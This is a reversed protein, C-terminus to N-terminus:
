PLQKERKATQHLLIRYHISLSSFKKLKSLKMVAKKIREDIFSFLTCKLLTLSTCYWSRSPPPRPVPGNQVARLKIHFDSLQTRSKAVRPVICDMFNELGSYQFPYGNGEGPSRGLGPISAVDGANSVSEKGASSGPFGQNSILM